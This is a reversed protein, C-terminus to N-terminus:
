MGRKGLGLLNEPKIKPSKRGIKGRKGSGWFDDDKLHKEILADIDPLEGMLLAQVCAQFFECGKGEWDHIENVYSQGKVTLYHATWKDDIVPHARMLMIQERGGSASGDGSEDETEDKLFQIEAELDDGGTGMRVEASCTTAKAEDYHVWPATEYPSLAHDVGLKECLEKLPIRM